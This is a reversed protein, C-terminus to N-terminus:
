AVLLDDDTGAVGGGVVVGSPVGEVLLDRTDGVEEVGHGGEVVALGGEGEGGEVVRVGVEAEDGVADVDVGVHDVEGPLEGGVADIKDGIPHGGEAHGGAVVVEAVAVDDDGGM